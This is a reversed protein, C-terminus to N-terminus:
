KNVILWYSSDPPKTQYPHASPLSFICVCVVFLLHFCTCDNHRCHGLKFGIVCSIHLNFYVGFMHRVDVPPCYYCLSIENSSAVAVLNQSRIIMQHQSPKARWYLVTNHFKNHRRIYIIRNGQKMILSCSSLTPYVCLLEKLLVPVLIILKTECKLLGTEQKCVILSYM